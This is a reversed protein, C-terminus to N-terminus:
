PKSPGKLSSPPRVGPTGTFDTVERPEKLIEREERLIRVERRLRRLEEREATMLGDSRLGADLEAQKVWASLTGWAVTM